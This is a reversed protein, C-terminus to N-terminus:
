DLSGWNCEHNEQVSNRVESSAETELWESIESPTMSEPLSFSEKAEYEITEEGTIQQTFVDNYEGLVLKTGQEPHTVATLVGYQKVSIQTAPILSVVATEFVSYVDTEEIPVKANDHPDVLVVRNRKSDFQLYHYGGGTDMRMAIGEGVVRIVTMWEILSLDENLDGRYWNLAKKLHNKERFTLESPNKLPTRLLRECEDVTGSDDFSM